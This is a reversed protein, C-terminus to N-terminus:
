EALRDRIRRIQDLDIGEPSQEIIHDLDDLAAQKRGLRHRMIGRMGRLAPDDPALVVMVESYRLMAETDDNSEAIARLNNLMRSLIDAHKAADFASPKPQRGTNRFVMVTASNRSLFKGRDFVDVMQHDGEDPEHRVVFHGPLGVGVVNLDLRKALSMYLVSLTIPLGERDSIVSDIHSNSARYYDTRSGHYGSQEFLFSNLKTFREAESTSPEWEISGAMSDVMEVFSEVDLEPNDLKAILLAGRLLDVEADAVSTLKAMEACVSATHLDSGLLRLSKAKSELERAQEDLLKMRLLPTDVYKALEDDRITSRDSLEALEQLVKSRVEPSSTRSDLKDGFRFQKFEAKTERFKCLGIKGPPQVVEDITSVLRDNVYTSIKDKEVRVKIENWEGPRYSEAEVDRIVNWNFVSPGEFSTLRIRGNSPYFGYHKNEGDSHFVLGAAGSENELKVSVALEFPVVPAKDHRLLLSRGGFSDGPQEVLIKGGRQRWAAGMKAQWRKADLRGITQWKEMGIPNPSKLLKHLQSVKVAFGFSEGVSRLALVGHVEGKMDLLPGGSNGPEITMAVQWMDASTFVREGAVLGSVVTHTLGLPHGIAVTAEGEVLSGNALKLAPIKEEPKFRLVALDFAKDSAYIETVRYRKKKRTEIWIPRAERIVHLCTAILGSEDIVFGTGMESEKGDRDETSIVVISDRAGEAVITVPSKTEATESKEQSFVPLTISLCIWLLTVRAYADSQNM